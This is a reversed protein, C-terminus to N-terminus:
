TPILTGDAYHTEYYSGEIEHVILTGGSVMASWNSASSYSASLTSPVYINSIGAIADESLAEVLSTSRLIVNDFSGGGSFTKGRIQTLSPGLDVASFNALRFTQWGLEVIAPLVILAKNNATGCNEFNYIGNINTLKPLNFSVLKPCAAFSYSDMGSANALGIKTCNPLDISELNSCGRFTNNEVWTISDSELSTIKTNFYFPSRNRFETLDNFEVSFADGSKGYFQDPTIGGGGTPIADVDDGFGTGGEYDFDLDASGGTKLRIRDATYTLAADLKTSDVLKDLAM